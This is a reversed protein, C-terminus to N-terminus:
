RTSTHWDHSLCRLSRPGALDHPGKYTTHLGDFAAKSLHVPGRPLSRRGSGCTGAVYTVYGLGFTVCCCTRPSGSTNQSARRSSCM